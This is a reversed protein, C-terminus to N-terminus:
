PTNPIPIKAIADEELSGLYLTKEFEQVSTIPSYAGDPDQLNHIVRGASNIGLVFGYPQIAPRFSEPLRLVMDRLYPHALLYDLSADRPSALAVWFIGGSGQSVGDPFGPLNEIVIETQGSSPGSLWYRKIRYKGTEVVLVSQQDHSVAVGNAFYLDDLLVSTMKRDPYYALLRGNPQHEMLDLIYDAQGFKHSADTFYITGDQAVDVDDTFRFSKGEAETALVLLNGATDVRLLGKVADAVILNRADDFHLGLPRGGTNVFLAPNGGSPNMVMIRGDQYGAYINGGVDIAVDEPGIGLGEALLTVADLRNNPLYDGALAPAQPPTWKGADIPVPWALLYMLLGWVVLVVALLIWWKRSM